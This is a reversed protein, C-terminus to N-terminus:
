WFFVYQTQRQYYASAIDAIAKYEAKKIREDSLRKEREAALLESHEKDTSQRIAKLLETAEHVCESQPDVTSALEAATEYDRKAYAAKASILIQSCQQSQCKRFIATMAEAVQGYAPMSEPYTSLLALAEDYSQQSALANAKTIIVSINDKYYNAIKSKTTEIFQTYMPSSLDIRNIASRQADSETYGEGKCAIQLTNFVTNTIINRVTVTINLEVSHINRMGGAITSSNSTNVEPIMAIAGYEMSAIGDASLLPLFKNKLLSKTNNDFTCESPMAISIYIGKNQAQLTAVILMLILSLISNKM